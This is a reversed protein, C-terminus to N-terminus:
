GMSLSGVFCWAGWLVGSEGCFDTEECPLECLCWRQELGSCILDSVLSLDRPQTAVRTGESIGTRM